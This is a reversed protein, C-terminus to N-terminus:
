LPTAFSGSFAGNGQLVLFDAALSASSSVLLWDGPVIPQNAAGSWATSTSTYSAIPTGSYDTVTVSWSTGSGIPIGGPGTIEPTADQWTVGDSASTVTLNYLHTSGSSFGTVYVVSLASSLPTISPSSTGSCVANPITTYSVVTGNLADVTANFTSGPAGNPTSPTCTTYEVTWEPGVTQGFRFGGIIAFLATANPHAARFGSSPVAVAQAAATSDIVDGPVPSLLGFFLGCYTGSLTGLVTGESGLVGVLAVNGASNDFAFVWGSAVGSTLNGVIGPITLNGSLSPAPAFTCYSGSLASISENVPVSYSENVAYGAAFLITWGGGQFGAVAGQAIPRAHDYTLGESSPGGSGSSPGFVSPLVLVLILIVIAVIIAAAVYLPLRGRRSFLASPGGSPASPISSPAPSAPPAIGGTATVGRM